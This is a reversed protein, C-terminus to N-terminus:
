SEGGDFAGLPIVLSTMGTREVEIGVDRELYQIDVALNGSDSAAITVGGIKRAERRTVVVKGIRIPTDQGAFWNGPDELADKITKALLGQQGSTLTTRLLGRSLLIDEIILAIDDELKPTGILRAPRGLEFRLTFGRLISSDALSAVAEADSMLALPVYSRDSM